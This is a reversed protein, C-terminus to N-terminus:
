HIPPASSSPHARDAALRKLEDPAGVGLEDWGGRPHEYFLAWVPGSVHLIKFRGAGSSAVLGPVGADEAVQWVLPGPGCGPTLCDPPHAAPDITDPTASLIVSVPDASGEPRLRVRWESPEAAVTIRPVQPAPTVSPRYTQEIFRETLNQAIKEYARFSSRLSPTEVLQQSAALDLKRELDDADRAGLARVLVARRLDDLHALFRKIEPQEPSTDRRSSEAILKGARIRAYIGNM